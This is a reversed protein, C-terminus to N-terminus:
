TLKVVSKSVTLFAEDSYKEGIYNKVHCRYRANKVGRMVEVIHLSDKKTDYYRDNDSLNRRNEQWQFQLNDGTAKM